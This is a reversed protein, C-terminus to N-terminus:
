IQTTNLCCMADNSAIFTEFLGLYEIRTMWGCGTVGCTSDLMEVNDPCWKAKGIYIIDFSRSIMLGWWFLLGGNLGNVVVGDVDDRSYLSYAPTGVLHAVAM